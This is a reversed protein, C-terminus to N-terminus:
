RNLQFIEFSRLSPTVNSRDDQFTLINRKTLFRGIFNAILYNIFLSNVNLKIGNKKTKKTKIKFKESVIYGFFNFDLM